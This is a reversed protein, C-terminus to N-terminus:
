EFPVILLIYWGPLLFIVLGTKAMTEKERGCISVNALLHSIIMLVSRVVTNVSVKHAPPKQINLAHHWHCAFRKCLAVWYCCRLCMLEKSRLM